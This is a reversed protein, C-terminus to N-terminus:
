LPVLAAAAAREGREDRGRWQRGLGRRGNSEDAKAEGELPDPRRGSPTLLGGGCGRRREREMLVESLAM